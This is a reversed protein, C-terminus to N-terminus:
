KAQMKVRRTPLLRGSIGLASYVERNFLEPVSSNRVHIREDEDNTLSTTVRVHTGLLDRIMNWRMRIGQQSLKVRIYNQVHYALVTIFLHADTRRKKQHNVPRLNLDTKLTRFADEVQTLMSYLAWLEAENLDTRSTRLFYSGSFRQQAQEKRAFSWTVKTAIGDKEAVEVEYYHAITAYKERLRGIRELVKCYRKTGGKKTLSANIAKMGEEFREQFLTKIAEEKKGKARSKCYLIHEGDAKFLEVEVKNDSDEKITILDDVGIASWEVPQNRAVCLYEYGRSKLLELNEEAAIGADMVVTARKGIVTPTPGEREEEEMAKVMELLTKSENVNGKFIRSAKPFGLEDIVLGLTVLPRGKQKDKSRGRKADPNEKAMGEFYTNTLDYLIIKEELSFLTRERVRLHHEISRKHKLLQDLIRYLANNSLNRYDTGLLEDIGSMKRAWIRTRRESRPYVLRGIISLFAHNIQTKSFGLSKLHHHMGLAKLVEVGIYEGGITRVRRSEITNLDVTEYDPEEYAREHASASMLHNQILIEAYHQAMQEIEENVPLLPMQGYVIEEIRDALQKWQTKPLELKGMHLLIRQRPGRQTRVSEVLRHSIFVKDYGKNQKKIEVIYM